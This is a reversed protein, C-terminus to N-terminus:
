LVSFYKRADHRFPSHLFQRPDRLGPIGHKPMGFMQDLGAGRFVRERARGPTAFKDGGRRVLRVGRVTDHSTDDKKCWLGATKIDGPVQFIYLFFM